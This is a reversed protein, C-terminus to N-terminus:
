DEVMVRVETYTNDKRLLIGMDVDREEVMEILLHLILIM